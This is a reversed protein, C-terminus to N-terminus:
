PIGECWHRGDGTCTPEGSTFRPDACARVDCKALRAVEPDDWPGPLAATAESVQGLWFPRDIRVYATPPADDGIAACDPAGCYRVRVWLPAELREGGAVLSVPVRNPADAAAARFAGSLPFASDPPVEESGDTAVDVVVHTADARGVDAAPPLELTLELIANEACGSLLIALSLALRKM